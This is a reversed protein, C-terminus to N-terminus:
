GKPLPARAACRPSKASATARQRWNKTPTSLVAIRPATVPRVTGGRHAFPSQRARIQGEHVCLRRACGYQTGAGPGGIGLQIGSSSLSESARQTASSVMLDLNAHALGALAEIGFSRDGFFYRFRYTVDYFALDTEHQLTQAPNFTTGAFRVPGQGAVLSQTDDGSAKM